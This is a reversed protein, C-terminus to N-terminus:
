TDAQARSPRVLILLDVVLNHCMSTRDMELSSSSKLSLSFDVTETACREGKVLKDWNEFSRRQGGGTVVMMGLLGNLGECIDSDCLCVDGM